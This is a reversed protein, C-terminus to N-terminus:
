IRYSISEASGRSQFVSSIRLKVAGWVRVWDEGLFSDRIRQRKAVEFHKSYKALVVVADLVNDNCVELSVIGSM